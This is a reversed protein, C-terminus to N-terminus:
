CCSPCQWSRNSSRPADLHLHPGFVAEGDPAASLWALSLRVRVPRHDRGLRGGTYSEKSPTPQAVATAAAPAEASGM